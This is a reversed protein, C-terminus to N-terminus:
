KTPESSPFDLHQGMDRQWGIVHTNERAHWESGALLEPHEAHAAEKVPLAKMKAQRRERLQPAAYRAALIVDDAGTWLSRPELAQDLLKAQAVTHPEAAFNGSRPHQFHQRGGVAQQMRAQM